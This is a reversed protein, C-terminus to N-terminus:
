ESKKKGMIKRLEKETGLEIEGSAIRRDFERAYKLDAYLEEILHYEKGLELVGARIADSKTKFFGTEVLEKLIEAVAGDLRVLVNM